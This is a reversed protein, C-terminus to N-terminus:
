AATATSRATVWVRIKSTAIPAFVVKRWVLNNNTVVGNPADVWQLGDWYQVNFGRLGWYAFTLTPTPDIPSSYTDQMSFVNVEEILKIGRFDVELWDPGANPTGDNWGGGAGWNLGKRDGNITGSAPYNGSLVSSAIATGGNAALAVNTRGPMPDITLTYPRLRRPPAQNDTAVATLTYTGLAPAWAVSFPSVADTGIPVGNAFFAVQQVAGDPDAANADITVLAPSTFTSNDIPATLTVTPPTNALINVHIPASTSTSFHDDTAIATILYAGPVAANWAVSYPSTTDVGILGGNAYFAVQQVTGDDDSAV